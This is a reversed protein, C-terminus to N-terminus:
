EGHSANAAEIILLQSEDLNEVHNYYEHCLRSNEEAMRHVHQHLQAAEDLVAAAAASGSGAQEHKDAVREDDEARRYAPVATIRFSRLGRRAPHTGCCRAQPIEGNTFRPLSSTSSRGCHLCLTSVCARVRQPM